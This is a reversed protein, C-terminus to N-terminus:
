RREAMAVSLAEHALRSANAFAGRAETDIFVQDLRREEPYERPPTLDVVRGVLVGSSADYLEVILTM